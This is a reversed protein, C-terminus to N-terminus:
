FIHENEIDSSSEEEIVQHVLNSFACTRIISIKKPLLDQVYGENVFTLSSYISIDIGEERSGDYVHGESSWSAQTTEAKSDLSFKPGLSSMKGKMNKSIRDINPEPGVSRTKEEYKKPDPDLSQESRVYGEESKSMKFTMSAGNTSSSLVAQPGGEQRSVSGRPCTSLVSCNSTISRVSWMYRRMGHGRTLVLSSKGKYFFPFTVRFARQFTQHMFAYVIPNVAPNIYIMYQAVTLFCNYRAETADDKFQGYDDLFNNITIQLLLLPLWCVTLIIVVVFMMKVVRKKLHTIIPHEKRCANRFRRHHFYVMITTYSVVMISLPLWNLAITGVIWWVRINEHEGCIKQTLDNWIHVTYVRYIAWPTALLASAAWIFIIIGVSQWRKFHQHFPYVVGVMRDFSITALSTVSVLMVLAEVDSSTEEEIVQTILLGLAGTSVISIKRPQLDKVYRENAFSPSSKTSPPDSAARSRELAISAALASSSLLASPTLQSNGRLRDRLSRRPTVMDNGYVDSADSRVSWVYRQMGAAPTLVFSSKDTFFCHFTVRFARRFTQHMLAYVIPNVAANTFMMYQSVSLLLKYQKKAEESIYRGTEDLFRRSCFKLLQFPLWCVIFVILVVFIMRVVRKKLHIMAPHERKNANLFKKHRFYIFINTYCVLMIGLPLWTLGITSVLWWTRIRSGQEGCTRETLDQWVHVTYVRYVGFPVALLACAVWIALIIVASQWRKLHQHFPYVVGVMRDFSITALSTVSVMMVLTQIYGELHCWTEGLVWFNNTDRITFPIPGAVGTILDAVSMNLIFHNVSTRLLLRNKMLIIIICVNGLVAMLTVLIAFTWKVGLEWTEPYTLNKMDTFNKDGYCYTVNISSTCCTLNCTMRSGERFALTANLADVEAFFHSEM